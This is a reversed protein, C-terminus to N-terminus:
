DGLELEPVKEKRVHWAISFAFVEVFTATIAGIISKVIFVSWWMEKPYRNAVNSGYPLAFALTAALSAGVIVARVRPSLQPVVPDRHLETRKCWRWYAWCLLLAGIASSALQLFAYMPMDLGFYLKLEPVVTVFLGSEHTFADWIVHTFVGILVSMAVVLFRSAPWFSYRLDDTTVRRAITNPALSLLPRKFLAHYLWLVILGCPWSFLFMGPLTHGYRSSHSLQIFYLYDPAM